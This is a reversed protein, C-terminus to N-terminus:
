DDGVQALLREAHRYGIGLTRQLLSTSLTGHRAAIARAQALLSDDTRSAREPTAPIGAIPTTDELRVTIAVTIETAMHAEM